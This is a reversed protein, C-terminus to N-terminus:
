EHLNTNGISDVDERSLVDGTASFDSKYSNSYTQLKEM